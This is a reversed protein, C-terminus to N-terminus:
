RQPAIGVVFIGATDARDVMEARDVLITAGAEVAIGRLGAAAVRSVTEPGITPLDVRTEQGCKALKVLVGGPGERRLASCREIMADTGEVAEIGLVIGQQVVAAQGVDVAGLAMLVKIGRAIDAQAQEDPRHEGLVGEDARLSPLLDDAGVVRFGEQELERIVARLLGDDGLGRHGLRAFFKMARLDPRLDALSPRRIRGAMVLDRVGQERLIAFGRGAAGIRIWEHPVADVVAPDAQGKFALVFFERGAKRCAEILLEPLRGGGALIGLKPEM